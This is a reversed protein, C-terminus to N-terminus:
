WISKNAGQAAAWTTPHGQSLLPTIPADAAAAAPVATAAPVDIAAAAAPVDAVAPAIAITHAATAATAAGYFHSHYRGSM